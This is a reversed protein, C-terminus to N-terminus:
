GGRRDLCENEPIPKGISTLEAKLQGYEEATKEDSLLLTTTRLFERVQTLAEHRRVARQAGFYLEGLVVLPVYMTTAAAVKPRLGHDGRIYDVIVSTDLLVSRAHNM